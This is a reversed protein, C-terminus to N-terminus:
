LPNWSSSHTWGLPFIEVLSLPNWISSLKGENKKKKKRRKKRSGGGVGDDHVQM